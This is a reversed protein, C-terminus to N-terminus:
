HFSCHRLQLGCCCWNKGQTDGKGVFSLLKSYPSKNKGGGLQAVLANKTTYAPINGASLLNVIFFNM